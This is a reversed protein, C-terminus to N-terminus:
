GVAQRSKNKVVQKEALKAIVRLAENVSKSDHFIEAVDPELVVVDNHVGAFRKAYKGRVGPSFDYEASMEPDMVSDSPKKIVDGKM